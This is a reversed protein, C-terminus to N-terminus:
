HRRMHSTAGRHIQQIRFFTIINSPFSGVPKNTKYRTCIPLVAFVAIVIGSGDAIIGFTGFCNPRRKGVHFFHEGFQVIQDNLKTPSHRAVADISGAAEAGDGGV